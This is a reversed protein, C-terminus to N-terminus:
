GPVARADPNVKTTMPRAPGVSSRANGCKVLAVQV